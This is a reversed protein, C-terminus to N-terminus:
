PVAKYRSSKEEELLQCYKTMVQIFNKRKEPPLSELKEILLIYSDPNQISHQALERKINYHRIYEATVAVSFFRSRFHHDELDRLTRRDMGAEQSFNAKSFYHMKRWETVYASWCELLSSM